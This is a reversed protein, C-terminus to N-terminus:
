KKKSGSKKAMNERRWRWSNKEVGRRDEGDAISSESFPEEDNLITLRKYDSYLNEESKCNDHDIGPALNVRKGSDEGKEEEEKKGEERNKNWKKNVIKKNGIKEKVNNKLINKLGKSGVSEEEDEEEEEEEEETSTVTVESSRNSSESKVSSPSKKRRNKEGGKKEKRAIRTVSFKEGWKKKGNESEDNKDIVIVVDASSFQMSEENGLKMEDISGKNVSLDGRNGVRIRLKKKGGELEEKEKDDKRKEEEKDEFKSMALAEPSAPNGTECVLGSGPSGINQKLNLRKPNRTQVMFPSSSEFGPSVGVDNIQPDNFKRNLFAEGMNRQFNEHGHSFGEGSLCETWPMALSRRREMEAEVQVIKGQINALRNEAVVRQSHYPAYNLNVREECERQRLTALLERLEADSKSALIVPELNSNGETTGLGQCEGIKRNVLNEVLAKLGNIKLQLMTLVPIVNAPPNAVMHLNILANLQQANRGEVILQDRNMSEISKRARAVTEDPSTTVSSGPVKRLIIRTAACPIIGQLGLFQAALAQLNISSPCNSTSCITEDNGPSCRHGQDNERLPSAGPGTRVMPVPGSVVGSNIIGCCNCAALRNQTVFPDYVPVVFPFPYCSASPFGINSSASNQHNPPLQHYQHIPNTNTGAPLIFIPSTNGVCTKIQDIINQPLLGNWSM